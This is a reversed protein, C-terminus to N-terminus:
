SEIGALACGQRIFVRAREDYHAFREDQTQGRHFRIFIQQVVAAFKMAAFAQYWGIRSLDRGTAQAYRQIVEDRTAFGEVHTPLTSNRIWQPPDDAHVWLTLLYGVDMLPDGSTCMDWDLVAVPTAPDANDLLINDLKFDNHLLTAAPSPPLTRRLWDILRQMMPNDEHAAAHWRKAWGEVQRAVFGEPHGLETLGAQERDVSHLAALVDIMMEGIRRMLATDGHYKDPIQRRIVQGHRREMVQFPAGILQADDCFLYSRPALHFHAYLKSLVRHERGMDHSGPAIPGLPPRRLVFEAEGFRLLYTLNAHGGGFQAFELPEDGVPLHARLYSELNTTDLTEDPRCAILEPDDFFM